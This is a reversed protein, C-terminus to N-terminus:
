YRVEVSVSGIHRDYDFFQDNSNNITGFYALTLGVNHMLNRSFAVVFQHEDDSRGNSPPAYVEHHYAYSAEGSFGYLLPWGIGADIENGDYAFQQSEPSNSIPEESDYRYGVSLYRDPTKVYVVQRIGASHNFANRIKFAQQLFDRRRMRYFIETFGLDWEQIRLWPLASAEQLFSDTKLLYYDYRAAVGVQFIGSKATLQISPRHDQLNFDTLRFHLSQFFDYGVSLEAHKTQWPVYWGGANLTIRGDAQNSILLDQKAAVDAPALVVNSDYQFGVSGSLEYIPNLAERMKGLFANAQHGMESDAKLSVVKRFHNEAESWNNEQYYTLGIYYQSALDLKPDKSVARQFNQRASALEGLRLQAIGLFLSAEADLEPVYQAQTLPLVAERYSDVQVLALGLELYAQEIDPRVKLVERLETIEKQNEHLRGYTVARYFRAYNDNQDAQVAQDFLKLAAEYHAAHFEVLGRSYLRESPGSAAAGAVALVWCALVVFLRPRRM